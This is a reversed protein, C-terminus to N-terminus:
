LVGEAKLSEYYINFKTAARAISENVDNETLYYKGGKADVLDIKDFRDLAVQVSRRNLKLEKAIRRTTYYPEGFQRVLLFDYVKLETRNRFLREFVM